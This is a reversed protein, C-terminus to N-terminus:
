SEPSCARPLKDYTTFMERVLSSRSDLLGDQNGAQSLGQVTRFFPDAWTHFVLWISPRCKSHAASQISAGVQCPFGGVVSEATAEDDSPNYTRVDDVVRCKPLSGDAMRAALVSVCDADCEM